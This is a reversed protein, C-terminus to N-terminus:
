GHGQQPLPSRHLRKEILPLRRLRSANTAARTTEEVDAINFLSFENHTLIGNLLDVSLMLGDLGRVASGEVV